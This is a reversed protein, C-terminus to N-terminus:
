GPGAARSGFRQPILRARRLGLLIAYTLLYYVPIMILAVVARLWFLVEFAKGMLMSLFYTQLFASCIVQTAIVSLSVKAWNPMKGTFWTILGPILGVLASNLTILPFYTGSPFVVFGIVDAIAGVGFGWLPGSIIGSLIIPLFGVSLRMAPVGAIPMQSSFIRTLVISLAILLGSIVVDRTTRNM